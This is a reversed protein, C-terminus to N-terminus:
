RAGMFRESWRKWGEGVVLGREGVWFGGALEGGGNRAQTGVELERERESM